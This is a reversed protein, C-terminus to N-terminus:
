GLFLTLIALCVNLDRRKLNTFRTEGAGTWGGLLKFRKKVDHGKKVLDLELLTKGDPEPFTIPEKNGLKPTFVLQDDSDVVLSGCMMANLVTRKTAQLSKLDDGEFYDERIDETLDMGRAWREFEAEAVEKAVVPKEDVTSVVIEAEESM